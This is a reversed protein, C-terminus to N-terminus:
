AHYYLAGIGVDVKPIKQTSTILEARWPDLEGCPLVDVPGRSSRCWLCRSILPNRLRHLQASNTLLNGELGTYDRPILEILETVM